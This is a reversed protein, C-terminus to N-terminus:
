RLIFTGEKLFSWTKRMLRNFYYKKFYGACTTTWTLMGFSDPIFLLYLNKKGRGEQVIPLGSFGEPKWAYLTGNYM